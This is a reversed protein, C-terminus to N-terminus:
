HEFRGRGGFLPNFFHDPFCFDLYGQSNRLLVPFLLIRVSDPSHDPQIQQVALVPFEDVM